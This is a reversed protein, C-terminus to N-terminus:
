DKKSKNKMNELQFHLWGIKYGKQKRIEELLGPHVIPGEDDIKDMWSDLILHYVWLPSNGLEKAVDLLKKLKDVNIEESESIVDVKNKSIIDTFYQQEIQPRKNYKLDSVTEVLEGDTEIFDKIPKGTKNYQCGVCSPKVCPMFEIYPCFKISVTVGCKTKKKRGDYRWEVPEWPLGDTCHRRANGVHDLITCHNKVDRVRLGWGFM